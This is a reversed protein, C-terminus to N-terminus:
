DEIVRYKQGFLRHAQRASMRKGDQQDPEEDAIQRQWFRVAAETGDGYFGTLAVNMAPVDPHHLLRYQLRRVSDSDDQGKHLKSVYVDGSAWKSTDPSPTDLRPRRDQDAYKFPAVREEYHLHAGFTNGTDGSTGIRQGAQITQGVTVSEASLHCYGHRIPVGDVVSEIIIHLGYPEGWTSGDVAVVQGDATAYVPTGIAARYDRGTHRGAAWNGPIGYEATVLAEKLPKPM